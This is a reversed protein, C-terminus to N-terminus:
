RTARSRQGCGHSSRDGWGVGYHEVVADDPGTSQLTLNGEAQAVWYDLLAGELEDVKM